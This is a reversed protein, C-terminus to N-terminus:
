WSGSRGAGPGNPRGSRSISSRGPGSAAGGVILMMGLLLFSSTGTSGPRPSFFAHEADTAGILLMLVAGGLAAAVRHIKETAILVYAGAFVALAAWATSSVAGAGPGAARGPHRRRAPRRRSSSRSWRAAALPGDARRGGARHRRRRVVPLERTGRCRRPWPATRGLQRSSSTRPPRTSWGPWRRTTRATGPCRWACCRRVPCSPVPRGADDVVILGPLDHGALLRAADIVLAGTRVTPFPVVLDRARM